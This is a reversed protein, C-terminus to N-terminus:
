MWIRLWSPNLKRLVSSFTELPDGRIKILNEEMYFLKDARGFRQRVYFFLFFTHINDKVWIELEMLWCYTRICARCILFNKAVWISLLACKYYITVSAKWELKLNWCDTTQWTRSSITIIANCLYPHDWLSITIRGFSSLILQTNIKCVQQYASPPTDMSQADVLHSGHEKHIHLIFDAIYVSIFPLPFSRTLVFHSYYKVCRWRQWIIITSIRKKM